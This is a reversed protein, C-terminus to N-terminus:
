FENATKQSGVRRGGQFGNIPSPPYVCFCNSGERVVGSAMECNYPGMGTDCFLAPRGESGDCSLNSADWLDKITINVSRFRLDEKFVNYANIIARPVPVGSARISELERAFLRDCHEEGAEGHRDYCLDHNRCANDWQDVPYPQVGTVEYAPYGKGCWKGYVPQCSVKIPEGESNILTQTNSCATFLHLFSFIVLLKTKM